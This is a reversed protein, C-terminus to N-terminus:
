MRARASRPSWSRRSAASFSAPRTASSAARARSRTPSRRRGLVSSRTSSRPLRLRTRRARASWRLCPAGSGDQGVVIRTSQRRSTHSGPIRTPSTASRRSSLPCPRPCRPRPATAFGRGADIRRETHHGAHDTQHRAAHHRVNRGAHCVEESKKRGPLLHMRPVLCRRVVKPADSSRRARERETFGDVRM